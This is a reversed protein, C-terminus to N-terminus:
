NFLHNDIKIKKRKSENLDKKATKIKKRKSVDSNQINKSIKKLAKSVKAQTEKLEKHVSEKADAGELVNAGVNLASGLAQKGVKRFTPNAAVKKLIPAAKSFIKLISAFFGGLGRGRQVRQYRHM